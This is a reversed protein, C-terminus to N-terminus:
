NILTKIKNDYSIWFNDKEIDIPTIPVILPKIGTLNMVKEIAPLVINKTFKGNSDNNNDLLFNEFLIGFCTFLLFFNAYYDIAKGGNNKFWNSSDYFNINKINYGYLEFLRRHFDILPEEWLTMVERLKKGNYKNFDVITVKEIPYSNKKNVFNNIHLQGLSHKFDNNSTFKDDFYEFFIPTLDYEKALSYFCQGEHDPTAIQRFLVACKKNNKFVEPIDGKLLKKVKAVLELDKQRKDLLRLAESLPTYVIQNFINRDSMIKDYDGISIKKEKEPM